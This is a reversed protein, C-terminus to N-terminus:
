GLGWLRTGAWDRRWGGRGFVAVVCIARTRRVTSVETAVRLLTDHAAQM